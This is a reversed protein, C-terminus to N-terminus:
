EDDDERTGRLQDFAAQARERRTTAPESGYEVDRFADTLEEVPERPFGRDVAARAVEGPTQTRWAGPVVWRAFTRWLERVSLLQEEAEDTNSRVRGSHVREAQGSDGDDAVMGGPDARLARWVAVLIALLSFGAVSAVLGEDGWRANAVALEALAFLALGARRLTLYVWVTTAVKRVANGVWAALTEFSTLRAWARSLLDGLRDVVRELAVTIELAVRRVVMVATVATGAAREGGSRVRRRYYVVGVLGIGLLAIGLGPLEGVILAADAVALAGWALAVRRTSAGRWLRTAGVTAVGLLCVVLVNVLTPVYIGRVPVSASQRETSTVVSGAPIAPLAFELSGDAATTGVRQGAVSVPVDGAPEGDISANVVAPEGPFPFGEGPRVTATLLRVDVTTEGAFDGRRVTVTVTERGDPVTVAALGSANTEGVISGDISVTGGRVPVDEISASVTLSSGPYPEGRVSLEVEGRVAYAGTANGTRQTQAHRSEVTASGAFPSTVVRFSRKLSATASGVLPGNGPFSDATDVEGAPRVSAEGPDADSDWQRRYFECDTQTDVTVSLTRNYPVRGRVRGDDDTRGVPDGNFRVRVGEVPTTDEFVGVSTESGPIPEDELLVGCGDTRPADDGPIPIPDGDDSVVNGGDVDSSDDNESEVVENTGGDSGGDDRTAEDGSEGGGSGGAGGGSEQPRPTPEPADISVDPAVPPPALLAAVFVALLCFTVLLFQRRDVREVATRETEDDPSGEM